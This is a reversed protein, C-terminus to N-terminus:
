SAADSGGTGIAAISTGPDSTAVGVAGVSAKPWGNVGAVPSPASDAPLLGGDGGVLGCSVFGAVPAAGTTGVVTGLM